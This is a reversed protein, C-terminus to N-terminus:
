DIRFETAPHRATVMDRHIINGLGDRSLCSGIREMIDNCLAPDVGEMIDIPMFVYNTRPTVKDKNSQRWVWRRTLVDKDDKYVIEDKEATEQGGGDMPMFPEGGEAFGLFIKGELPAPDHGGVPVLYELSIANYLDVIPNVRPFAGGKLVRRLLSEISSLYKSAPIGVKTFAQRWARIHPHDQPKEYSFNTRLREIVADLLDDGYRTNDIHCVLTGISLGPFLNFLRRDVSFIM